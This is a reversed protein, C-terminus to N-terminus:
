YLIIYFYKKLIQCICIGAFNGSDSWKQRIGAFIAPIRCFITPDRGTSRFGATRAPIGGNQSSGPRVLRLNWWFPRIRGSSSPRATRALDLGSGDLIGALYGTIRGSVRNSRGIHSSDPM